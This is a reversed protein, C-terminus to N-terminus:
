LGVKKLIEKWEERTAAVGGIEIFDHPDKLCDSDFYVEIRNKCDYCRVLMREARRKTGKRFTVKPKV